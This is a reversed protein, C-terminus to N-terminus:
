PFAAGPPGGGTLSRGHHSARVVLRAVERGHLAHPALHAPDVAGVLLGVREPAEERGAGAQDGVDGAFGLAQDVPGRTVDPVQVGLQREGGDGRDGGAVHPLPLAQRRRQDPLRQGLRDGSARGHGAEPEELLAVVVPEAESRTGVLVAQAEVRRRQGYRHRSPRRHADTDVLQAVELPEHAPAVTAVAAHDQVRGAEELPLPVPGLLRECEAEPRVVAAERM